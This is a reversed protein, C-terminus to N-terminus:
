FINNLYKQTFDTVEMYNVVSGTNKKISILINLKEGDLETIQYTVMEDTEIDKEIAM